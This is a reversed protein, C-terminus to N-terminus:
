SGQKSRDRVKPVKVPVDGLATQIKRAPLYGNRVVAQRGEATKLDAYHELLETVEAEIAQELLRRAGERLIDTL